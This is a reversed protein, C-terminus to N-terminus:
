LLISGVFERQGRVFEASTLSKKGELQLRQLCLLGSACEVCVEAERTGELIIVKGPQHTKLCTLPKAELIKLNKGGWSTYCGPWPQYARVQRWLEVASRRWDIKGDERKIVTTYTARGADQAQPKIRGEMWLPMIEVLMEAGIDALRASLSGCTDDDMIEVERQRFVPGSDMGEDLLMLSVGTIDEGNLIASSVPTPGRYKPLLSPHINIFGHRPLSLIDAPIIKGYAAVVAIDPEMSQMQQKAEGDKLTVPQQLLLGHALALRKVPSPTLKQGRGAGKDPQTYVAVLEYDSNSVLAEMSPISFEGSGM